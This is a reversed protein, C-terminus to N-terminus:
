EARLAEIPNFKTARRAPLWCALAAISALFVSVGAYILPDSPSVEYLQATLLRSLGLAALVGLGLGLLALRLGEGLVQTVIRASSAGLAMRVGFENTRRGVSYSVVGYIGLGALTLALLAFGGVLRAVLRRDSISTALQETLPQVEAMPLNADLAHVAAKIDNHLSAAQRDTRIVFSLFATGFQATPYYINDGPASSLQESRIDGVVGVIERPISALGTVLRHGLPNEGSPFLRHATSQSIIVVNPQDTGDRWTFDRGALLPLGLTAFYGPLCFSRIALQRQHLPTVTQGELAIPARTNNGAVIPLNNTGSAATVGPIAALRERLQQFFATQRAANPYQSPSLQVNFCWRSRSRASM